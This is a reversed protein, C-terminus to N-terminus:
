RNQQLAARVDDSRVRRGARMASGHTTHLAAVVDPAFRLQPATAWTRPASRRDLAALLDGATVKEGGRKAAIRAAGILRRRADSSFDRYSFRDNSASAKANDPLRQDVWLYTDHQIQALTSIPVKLRQACTEISRFNRDGFAPGAKLKWFELALGGRSKAYQTILDWFEKWDPNFRLSDNWRQMQDDNLEGEYPM